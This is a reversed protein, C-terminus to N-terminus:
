AVLYVLLEKGACAHLDKTLPIINKIVRSVKIGRFWFHQITIGKPISIRIIRKQVVPNLKEDIQFVKQVLFIIIFHISEIHLPKVNGTTDSEHNMLFIKIDISLNLGRVTVSTTNM